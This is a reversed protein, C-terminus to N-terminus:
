SGRWKKTVCRENLSDACIRETRSIQSNIFLYGDGENKTPSKFASGWLLGIRNEKMKM